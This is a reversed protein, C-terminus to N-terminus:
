LWTIDYKNTVYEEIDAIAPVDNQWLILEYIKGEHWAATNDFGGLNLGLNTKGAMTNATSRTTADLSWHVDMTDDDFNHQSVLGWATDDLATGTSTVNINDWFTTPATAAGSFRLAADVSGGTDAYLYHTAAPLSTDAVILIIRDQNDAWDTTPADKPSLLHSSARVFKAHARDNQGSVEYTPGVSDGILHDGATGQDTVGDITQGAASIASTREEDQWLQNIDSFDYWSLPTGPPTWVVVGGKAAHNRGGFRGM